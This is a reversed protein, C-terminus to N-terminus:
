RSMRLGVVCLVSRESIPMRRQLLLSNFMFILIHLSNGNIFSLHVIFWLDEHMVTVACRPLRSGMVVRWGVCRAQDMSAELKSYIADDGTSRVTGGESRPYSKSLLLLRWQFKWSKLEEKLVGWLILTYSLLFHSLITPCFPISYRLIPQRPIHNRLIFYPTIFSYFQFNYCINVPTKSFRHFSGLNRAPAHVLTKIKQRNERTVAIICCM